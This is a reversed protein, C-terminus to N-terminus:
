IVANRSGLEVLRLFEGRAIPKDKFAGTLASTTTITGRARVGRSEMCMHRCQIVVGVAVPKLVEQITDAIQRTMREQVQLRRSFVEVLRAFKSLGVVRGNPIYGVHALGWFPALHHECSSYVPINSVLVVEDYSEAGDAFSKLLSAPDAEYGSTYEAWAKVMREPTEALGERECEPALERLFAGATKVTLAM